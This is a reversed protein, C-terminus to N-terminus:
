SLVVPNMVTMFLVDDSVYPKNLDPGIHAFYKSVVTTGESVQVPKLNWSM